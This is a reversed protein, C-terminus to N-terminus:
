VLKVIAFYVLPFLVQNQLSKIKLEVPNGANKIAEVAVQQDSSTLKTEGVQVLHDGTFIKGTRGAPSDAIVNKIFIGSIGKNIKSSPDSGDEQRYQGGECEISEVSGGVISIGLGTEPSPRHVEVTQIPSWSKPVGKCMSNPIPTSDPQGPM